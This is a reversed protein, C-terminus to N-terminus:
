VNEEADADRAVPADTHLYVDAKPYGIRINELDFSLKIRELLDCKTVWYKNNPVWCRAGLTVGEKTLSMAYVVPRPAALVRPDEIMLEELVQKARILDSSYHIDLNVKIRRTPTFHYNTVIGDLIQRNPIFITKGDFTQIRTNLFTIGEVKGLLSGIKITHGKKFPLDPVLPRFLLITGVAVMAGVVLLRIIPRIPLGAQVAAAIIVILILLVWLVNVFTLIGKRSPFTRALGVRLKNVVWRV